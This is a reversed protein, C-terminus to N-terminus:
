NLYIIGGIRSVNNLGKQMNGIVKPVDYVQETGSLGGTVVLSRDIITISYDIGNHMPAPLVFERYYGDNVGAAIFLENQATLGIDRLAHREKKAVLFKIDDSVAALFVMMVIIMIGLFVMFESSVQARNM